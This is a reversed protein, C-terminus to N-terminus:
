QESRRPQEFRTRIHKFQLYELMGERGHEYGVGSQKRGGYPANIIGADVNNVAVNGYDLRSTLFKTEDMLKSYVYAALGYPTDNCLEIAHELSDYPAVGVVPGFTEESMVKMNQTCDVLVTPRFFLGQKFEQGIPPLGGELLNAGKDLADAIHEQTKKLVDESALAGMDADPSDLGNAVTLYSASEALKEVFKSYLSRDVYIRNIAICIQGNNRFSRRSAGKVAEDLDASGTVVMPCNGGLELSLRKINRCSQQIKLGVESSGTFAVKKVTPHEVLAQGVASGSGTVINVVGPPIGVQEVKKAIALATFPTLEAPKIVITCGAALAACLKWGVLEAPYNWPTIAAVVGIPERIVLSEFDNSDNPFSEGHIRVAEEAYFHCTEALKLIEGKAENLPKGQETTMVQAICKADAGIADGLQHLFNAREKASLQSWHQFASEAAEVAGDVEKPTSTCISGIVQGTAPNFVPTLKGAPRIWHGNIYTTESLEDIM